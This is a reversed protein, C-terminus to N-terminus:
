LEVENTPIVEEIERDPGFRVLLYAYRAGTIMPQTDLLYISYFPVGTAPVGYVGIFPDRIITVPGYPALNTQEYAIKEMLPSAQIVDGSVTPFNNNPVQYRYLVVPLVTTDDDKDYLSDLPNIFTRIIADNNTYGAVSGMGAGIRIGVPYEQSPLNTAVINPDFPAEVNPLDRDPWPVLPGPNSEASWKFEEVNSRPGVAGDKGIAKVYAYYRKGLQIPITLTFQPGDGFSPGPKRSHYVFFDDTKQQGKIKFDVDADVRIQTSLNAALDNPLTSSGHVGISVEFRDVGPTPCFWRLRM